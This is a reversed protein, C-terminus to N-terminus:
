CGANVLAATWHKYEGSWIQYEALYGAATVKDGMADYRQAMAKARNGLSAVMELNHVNTKAQTSGASLGVSAAALLVAAIGAQRICQVNM